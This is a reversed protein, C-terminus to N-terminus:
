SSPTATPGEADSHRVEDSASNDASGPAVIAELATIRALLRENEDRAAIAMERVAEFEERSVVDLSRLVREAQVRAATEVERRAGEALGAADTILRAVDDFLRGSTQTM